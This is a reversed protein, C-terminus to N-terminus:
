KKTKVPQAKVTTNEKKPQTGFKQPVFIKKETAKLAERWVKSM